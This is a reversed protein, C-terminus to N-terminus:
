KFMMDMENYKEAFFGKPWKKFSGLETIELSKIKSYGKKREVYLVCIDKPLLKKTAIYRQLRLLLHESHTEVIVQKGKKIFDLLMDGLMLQAAPHLHIEPQEIILTEGRGFYGEVLVPLIQSNGYGVDALNHYERQYGPSRVLVEYHRSSLAKITVEDALNARALWDIINSHWKKIERARHLSHQAFVPATAEGHAGVTSLREGTYLYTRMPNARFPGLYSCNELINEFIRVVNWLKMRTNELNHRSSPGLKEWAPFAPYNFFNRRILMKSAGKKISRFIRKAADFIELRPTGRQNLQMAVFPKNKHVVSDYAKFATQQVERRQQRYGFKIEIMFQSKKLKRLEQSYKFSMSIKRRLDHHSVFDQFTGLDVLPGTLVLPTEQDSSMLTQKLLLLPQFITSKGSNNPGLIITLKSFTIKTPKDFCKFNEIEIEKLM